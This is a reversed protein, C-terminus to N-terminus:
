KKQIAMLEDISSSAVELGENLILWIAKIFGGDNLIQCNEMELARYNPRDLVDKLFQEKIDERLQKDILSELIEKISLAFTNGIMKTIEIDDATREGKMRQEILTFSSYDQFGFLTFRGEVNHASYEDILLTLDDYSLIFAALTQVISNRSCDWLRCLIHILIEQILFHSLEHILTTIQLSKTQRDDILIVDSEFYGLQGGYSKYDVKVFSKTFLIIKELIDLEDFDIENEKVLNDFNMFAQAKIDHLVASYDDITFDFDTIKLLNEKDLIEGFSKYDNQGNCIFQPNSQIESVDIRDSINKLHVLCDMCVNERRPYKRGCKPCYKTIMGMLSVSRLIRPEERLDGPLSDQEVENCVDEDYDYSREAIKKMELSLDAKSCQIFSAKISENLAEKILKSKETDEMSYKSLENLNGAM